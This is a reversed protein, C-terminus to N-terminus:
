DNDVVMVCREVDVLKGARVDQYIDALLNLTDPITLHLEYAIRRIREWIEVPIERPRVSDKRKAGQRHSKSPVARLLRSWYNKNAKDGSSIKPSGGLPSSRLAVGM